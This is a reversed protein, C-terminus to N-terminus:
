ENSYRALAQEFQATAAKLEEFRRQIDVCHKRIKTLEDKEHQVNACYESRNGAGNAIDTKLNELRIRATANATKCQEYETTLNQANHFAVNFADLEEAFDLNLTDAAIAMTTQKWLQEAYQVSSTVEELHLEKEFYSSTSDSASICTDLTANWKSTKGGCSSLAIIGLFLVTLLKM